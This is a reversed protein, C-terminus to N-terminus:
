CSIIAITIKLVLTLELINIGISTEHLYISFFKKCALSQNNFIWVATIILLVFVVFKIQIQIGTRLVFNYRGKRAFSANKHTNFIEKGCLGM